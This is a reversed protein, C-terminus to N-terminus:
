TPMVTLLNMCHPDRKHVERLLTPGDMFPM